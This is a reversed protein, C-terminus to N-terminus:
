PRVRSKTPAPLYRGKCVTPKSLDDEVEKIINEFTYTLGQALFLLEYFQFVVGTRHRSLCPAQTHM